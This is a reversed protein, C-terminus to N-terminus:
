CLVLKWSPFYCHLFIHFVTNKALLADVTVKSQLTSATSIFKNENKFKRGKAGYIHFHCNESFFFRFIHQSHKYKTELLLFHMKSLFSKFIRGTPNTALPLLYSFTQIFDISSFFSGGCDVIQQLRPHVVCVFLNSYIFIFVIANIPPIKRSDWISCHQCQDISSPLSAFLGVRM